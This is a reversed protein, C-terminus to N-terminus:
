EEGEQPLYAMNEYCSLAARLFPILLVSGSGEGLRVDCGRLAPTMDLFHALKATHGSMSPTHSLILHEKLKPYAVLLPAIAALTVWGDVIMPVNKIRGGVVSGMLAALEFGGLCRAVEFPDDRLASYKQLGKEIVNLKAMFHQKSGTGYSCWQHPEEKTLACCLASACTTNGLGVEGLCILDRDPNISSYGQQLARVFDREDMAPAHTFDQTSKLDCINFTEVNAHVTRALCNVASKKEHLHTAIDKTMSYSWPTVGHDVLGHRGIYIYASIHDLKLCQQKQWAGLWYLLKELFGLSGKPIALHSWRTHLHGTPSAGILSAKKCLYKFDSISDFM